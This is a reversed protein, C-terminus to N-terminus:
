SEDDGGWPIVHFLLVVRVVRPLLSRFKFGGRLFKAELDLLHAILLYRRARLELCGIDARAGLQGNLVLFRLRHLADMVFHLLRKATARWGFFLKAFQIFTTFVLLFVLLPIASGAQHVEFVSFGVVGCECFLRICCKGARMLHHHPGFFDFGITVWLNPILALATATLNTMRNTPRRHRLGLYIRERRPAVLNSNSVARLAVTEVHLCEGTLLLSQQSIPPLTVVKVQFRRLPPLSPLKHQGAGLIYAFAAPRLLSCSNMVKSVLVDALLHQELQDRKAHRAVRPTM